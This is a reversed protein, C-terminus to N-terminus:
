QKEIILHPRHKLTYYLISFSVRVQASFISRNGSKKERNSNGSVRKLDTNEDSLVGLAKVVLM